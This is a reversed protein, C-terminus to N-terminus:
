AVVKMFGEHDTSKTVYEYGLPDAFMGATQCEQIRLSEIKKKLIDDPLEYLLDMDEKAVTIPQEINFYINFIEDCKKGITEYKEKSEIATYFNARSGSRKLAAYTWAYVTRHDDHGTLGDPGFSIVTDPEVITIIEVLKKVAESAQVNKLQGDEYGLWAHEKVGLVDMAQELEHKRIEGLRAQPWKTEDATQGADGFTATVCVVHQGNAAACAMLGGMCWSEDDPHAWVGLITGLKKVDDTRLIM